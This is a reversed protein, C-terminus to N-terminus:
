GPGSGADGGHVKNSRGFAMYGGYLLWAAVGTIAVGLMSLLRKATQNFKERARDAMIGSAILHAAKDSSLTGAELQELVADQKASHERSAPPIFKSATFAGAGIVLLLFAPLLIVFLYNYQGARRESKERALDVRLRGRRELFALVLLLPAISFFLGFALGGLKPIVQIEELYIGGAAMVLGLAVSAAIWKSAAPFALSAHCHPCRFVYPNWRTLLFPLTLGRSCAPCNTKM